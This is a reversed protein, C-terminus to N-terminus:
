IKGASVRILTPTTMTLLISELAVNCFHGPSLEFVTSQNLQFESVSEFVLLIRYVIKIFDPIYPVKNGDIQGPVDWTDVSENECLFSFSVGPGKHRGIKITVINISM